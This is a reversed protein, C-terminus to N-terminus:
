PRHIPMSYQQEVHLEIPGRDKLALPGTYQLDAPLVINQTIPPQAVEVNPQGCGSLCIVSLLFLIVTRM